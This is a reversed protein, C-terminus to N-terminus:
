NISYTPTSKDQIVANTIVFQTVYDKVEDNLDNLILLSNVVFYYSTMQHVSTAEIRIQKGNFFNESFFYFISREM